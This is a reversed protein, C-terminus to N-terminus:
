LEFDFAENIWARSASTVNVICPPTFDAYQITEVMSFYTAAGTAAVGALIVGFLLMREAAMWLPHRRAGSLANQSLHLYFLPPFIFMLPGTLAGGILGMILDFRPVTLGLGVALMILTSRVVCRKWNFERPIGLKDEVDQFLACGGVVMSLCIQLTVLLVDAYLPANAPMGQLLNPTVTSGYRWMAIVTTTLFLSCTVLFGCTIAKGLENKREMDVQVTLIMPHIDFQFAIVGYAVAIAEWSIAPVPAIELDRTDTIMTVWTLVGVSGVTFVSTGALWKMDKPSGLWMIPCLAIGVLVLWYCFSFEFSWHSMKLGILQLNQSAVLLNPICGGFVTIDLLFSVLRSAKLGLAEEALAAYPYRSKLMILPNIREAMVWCRGLLRATYIQLTFVSLAVPIGIWGCNIIARPLAVIPFVGFLDVICLTAFLLSLGSGQQPLVEGFSTENKDPSRARRAPSTKKQLVDILLPISENGESNEPGM